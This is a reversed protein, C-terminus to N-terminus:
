LSTRPPPCRPQSRLKPHLAPGGQPTPLAQFVSHLATDPEPWIRAPGRHPPPHPTPTPSSLGASELMLPPLTLTDGPHAGSIHTHTLMCPRERGWGPLRVPRM